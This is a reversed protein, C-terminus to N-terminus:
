SLVMDATVEKMKKVTASMKNMNQKLISKRSPAETLTEVIAQMKLPKPVM